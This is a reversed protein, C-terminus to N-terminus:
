LMSVKWPLSNSKHDPNFLDRLWSKIWKNSKTLRKLIWLKEKNSVKLLITFHPIRIFNYGHLNLSQPTNKIFIKYPLKTQMILTFTSQEKPLKKIRMNIPCRGHKLIIMRINSNWKFISMSSPIFKSASTLTRLVTIISMTPNNISVSKQSLRSKKNIYFM